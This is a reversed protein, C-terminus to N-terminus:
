SLAAIAADIADWNMKGHEDCQRRSAGFNTQLARLREILRVDTPTVDIVREISLGGIEWAEVYRGRGAADHEDFEEKRIDLMPRGYFDTQKGDAHDICFQRVGEWDRVIQTLPHEIDEGWTQVLLSTNETTM